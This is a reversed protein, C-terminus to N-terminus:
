ENDDSCLLANSFPLVGLTKDDLCMEHKNFKLFYLFVFENNSDSLKWKDKSHTNRLYSKLM